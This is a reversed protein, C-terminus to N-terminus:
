KKESFEKNIINSVETKIDKGKVNVVIYNDDEKIYGKEIVLETIEELADNLDDGKFNEEKLLNSGDENLGEIKVVENKYNLGLEISPNIDLTITTVIKNIRLYYWLSTGSIGLLFLVLVIILIIKKKKM